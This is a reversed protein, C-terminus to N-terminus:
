KLSHNSSILLSFELLAMLRLSASETESLIGLKRFAMSQFFRAFTNMYVQQIRKSKGPCISNPIM